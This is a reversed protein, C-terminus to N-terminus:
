KPKEGGQDDHPQAGYFVSFAFGCQQCQASYIPGGGSPGDWSGRFDAESVKVDVRCKPCKKHFFGTMKQHNWFLKRLDGNGTYPLRGFSHLRFTQRMEPRSLTPIIKNIRSSKFFTNIM